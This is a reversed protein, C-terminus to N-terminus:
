KNPLNSWVSFPMRYATLRGRHLIVSKLYFTGDSVRECDTQPHCNHVSISDCKWATFIRICLTLIMLYWTEDSVTDCLTHLHCNHESLLHCETILLGGWKCFRVWYNLIRMLYQLLRLLYTATIYLCIIVIQLCYGGWICFWVWYNTLRM